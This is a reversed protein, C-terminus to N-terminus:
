FRSWPGYTPRTRNHLALRFRVANRAGFGGARGRGHMFGAVLRGAVAIRGDVVVVKRHNRLNARGRFPIHLMPMFYAVQAGANILPALHRRRIRWSGVDDLLLRVAVGEAARRTLLDILTQSGEDRGLIYTTIHITSRAEEIMRMVREYADVGSTILEVRNDPSAQPVGYSELLREVNNHPGGGHPRVAPHYILNKKRAMRRIKRGGFMMYLPVGLYPWVLIVLLWAVTSSPSRRERLLFAMLVLAMLFGVRAWLESFFWNVGYQFWNSV